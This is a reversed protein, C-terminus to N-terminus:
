AGADASVKQFHSRAASSQHGVLGQQGPHPHSVLDRCGPCPRAPQLKLPLSPALPPSSWSRDGLAPSPAGGLSCSRHSPLPTHLCITQGPCWPNSGLGPQEGWRFGAIHGCLADHDREPGGLASTLSLTSGGAQPVGTSVIPTSPPPGAPAWPGRPFQLWLLSRSGPLLSCAQDLSLRAPPPPQPLFGPRAPGGGPAAGPESGTQPAPGAPNQTSRPCGPPAVGTGTTQQSKSSPRPSGPKVARGTRTFPVRPPGATLPGQTGGGAVKPSDSTRARAGSAGRGPTLILPIVWQLVTSWVTDPVSTGWTHSRKITVVRSGGPRLYPHHPRIFLHCLQSPTPPLHLVATVLAPSSTEQTDSAPQHRSCIM